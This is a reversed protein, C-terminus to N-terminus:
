LKITEGNEQEVWITLNPKIKRLEDINIKELTEYDIYLKRLWKLKVLVSYDELDYNRVLHLVNLNLNALCSIDSITTEKLKM